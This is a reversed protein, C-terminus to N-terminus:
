AETKNWEDSHIYHNIHCEKETMESRKVASLMEELIAILAESNIAVASLQAVYGEKLALYEMIFRRKLNEIIAHTKLALFSM